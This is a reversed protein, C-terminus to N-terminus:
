RVVALVYYLTLIYAATGFIVIMYDTIGVNMVELTVFLSYFFEFM